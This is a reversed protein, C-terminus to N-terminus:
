LTQVNLNLNYVMVDVTDTDNAVYIEIFDGNSLTYLLASSIERYLFGGGTGVFIDATESKTIKVGNIYVMMRLQESGGVGNMYLVANLNIAVKVDNTGTYTLRGSASTHSFHNVEGVTTTLTGNTINYETTAVAIPTDNAANNYVYLEGFPKSNWFSNFAMKKDQDNDIDVVHIMDYDNGAFSETLQTITKSM